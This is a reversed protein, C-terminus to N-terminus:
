NQVMLSEKKANTRIKGSEESLVTDPRIIAVSRELNSADVAVVYDVAELGAIVTSAGSNSDSSHGGQDLGVVLVEGQKRAFELM